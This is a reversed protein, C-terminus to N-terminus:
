PGALLVLSLRGSCDAVRPLGEFLWALRWNFISRVPYDGARLKSGMVEYYTGGNRIEQAVDKFMTLDSRGARRIPDETVDAIPTIRWALMYVTTLALVVFLRRRRVRFPVKDGDVSTFSRM